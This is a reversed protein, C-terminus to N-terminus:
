PNLASRRTGDKKKEKEEREKDKLYKAVVQQENVVKSDETLSKKVLIKMM